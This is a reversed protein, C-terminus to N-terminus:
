ESDLDAFPICRNSRFQLAYCAIDLSNM